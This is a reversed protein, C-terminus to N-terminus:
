KKQFAHIGFSHQCRNYQNLSEIVEESKKYFLKITTINTHSSFYQPLLNKIM